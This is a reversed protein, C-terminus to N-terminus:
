EGSLANILDSMLNIQDDTLSLVVDDAEDIYFLMQIQANMASAYMGEKYCRLSVLRQLLAAQRLNLYNCVADFDKDSM